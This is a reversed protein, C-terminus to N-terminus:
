TYNPLLRRSEASQYDQRVFFDKWYQYLDVQTGTMTETVYTILIQDGDKLQTITPDWTLVTEGKTNQSFSIAAINTSTWVTTGVHALQLEYLSAFEYFLTNDTYKDLIFEYDNEFKLTQTYVQPWAIQWYQKYQLLQMGAQDLAQTLSELTGKKKFQPVATVIQGRWRTIDLSRLTLAFM